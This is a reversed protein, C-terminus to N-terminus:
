AYCSFSRELTTEDHIVNTKPFLEAFSFIVLIIIRQCVPFHFPLIGQPMVKVNYFSYHPSFSHQREPFSLSPAYRQSAERKQHKEKGQDDRRGQQIGREFRHLSEPAKGGRCPIINLKGRRCIFQHVSGVVQRLLDLAIGHHSVPRVQLIIEPLRFRVAAPLTGQCDHEPVRRIGRGEPLQLCGHLLGQLEHAPFIIGHPQHQVRCSIRINGCGQLVHLHGFLVQCQIFACLHVLGPCHHMVRLIVRPLAPDPLVHLFANIRQGAAGLLDPILQLGPRVTVQFPHDDQQNHLADAYEFDKPQEGVQPNHRQQLSDAVDPLIFLKRHGACLFEPVQRFGIVPHVVGVFLVDFAQAELSGM